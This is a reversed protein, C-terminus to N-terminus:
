DKALYKIAMELIAISDNFNGLGLNCKQCILGRICKGCSKEGSCCSHDHDICLNKDLDSQHRKCIACLGEQSEILIDYTGHELGYMYKNRSNNEHHRSRNWCRGARIKVPGCQNCMGRSDEYKETIKHPPGNKICLHCEKSDEPFSDLIKKKMCSICIKTPKAKHKRSCDNCIPQLGDKSAARKMFNSKDKDEKCKTCKKM